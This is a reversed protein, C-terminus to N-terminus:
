RLGVAWKLQSYQEPMFIEEVKFDNSGTAKLGSVHWTDILTTERAPFNCTAMRPNAHEDAEAVRCLGM